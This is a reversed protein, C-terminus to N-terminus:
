QAALIMAPIMSVNCRSSSGPSSERPAVNRDDRCAPVLGQSVSDRTNPRTNSDRRDRAPAAAADNNCDSKCGVARSSPLVIRAARSNDRVTAPPSDDRSARCRARGNRCHSTSTTLSSDHAQPPTACNRLSRSKASGPLTQAQLLLFRRVREQCTPQVRNLLLLFSFIAGVNESLSTDSSTKRPRVIAAITSTLLGPVHDLM